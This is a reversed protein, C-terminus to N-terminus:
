TRTSILERNIAILCQKDKTNEEVPSDRDRIQGDPVSLLGPNQVVSCYSDDITHEAIRQVPEGAISRCRHTAANEGPVGFAEITVLAYRSDAVAHNVSICVASNTVADM